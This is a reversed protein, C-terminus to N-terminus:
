HYIGLRLSGVLVQDNYVALVYIGSPLRSVNTVYQNGTWQEGLVRRGMVDFMHLTHAADIGAGPVSIIIPQHAPNGYIEVAPRDPRTAIDRPNIIRVPDTIYVCGQADTVTCQYTGSPVGFIDETTAGNSWLFEYGLTGGQVTLDIGPGFLGPPILHMDVDLIEPEAISVQIQTFNGADDTVSLVYNGPGLDNWTPEGWQAGGPGTWLYEFNGSGGIAEASLLGDAEGFCSVHKVTIAVLIASATQIWIDECHTISGCPNTVTLCVEYAGGFAYEHEPDAADSTNGDGFDWHYTVDDGTMAAGFKALAEESSHAFSAVPLIRDDVVAVQDTSMCSTENNVVVFVYNGPAGFEPSLTNAGSLIQGNLTTWEISFAGQGAVSADPQVVGNFCDIALDPGADIEPLDVDGEIVISEQTHCGYDLDQINLTYLGPGLVTCSQTYQGSIIQGNNTSWTYELDAGAVNTIFPSIVVTPNSCSLPDSIFPMDIYPGDIDQISVTTNTVCNNADVIEIFHNGEPLNVIDFTGPFVTGGSSFLNYPPTGGTPVVTIQGISQRCHDDEVSTGFVLVQPQTVTFSETHTCSQADTITLTYQGAALQAITTSTGGNSWNYSFGGNGGGAQISILGTNDNNCSLNTVSQATLAIPTMPGTVSIDDIFVKRNYGETITVHYTGAEVNQLNQSTSGNSWLFTIGGFGGSYSINAGGQGLGFCTTNQTSVLSAELSCSEIWNTLIETGVQGVQYIKRDPCVKYITPYFAIQYAQMVANDTLNIIPYPTGTVWDGQSQQTLGYLDDLGTSLDGEIFFVMSQNTGPPGQQLYFNKLAHTNHYNWCPGCWTASFDLVVSKGQDLYDYLTYTNGFIDTLTWNPATSGNQLQASLNLSACVAILTLFRYVNKM